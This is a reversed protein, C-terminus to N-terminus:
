KLCGLALLACPLRPIICLFLVGSNLWYLQGGGATCLLSVTYNVATPNFATTVGVGTVGLALRPRLGALAAVASPQLLDVPDLLYAEKVSVGEFGPQKSAVYSAVLAALKGGRSHGALAMHSLDLRSRINDPSQQELWQVFTPFARAQPQSHPLRM